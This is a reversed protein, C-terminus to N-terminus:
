LGDRSSMELLWRLAMSPAELLLHPACVQVSPIFRLLSALTAQTLTIDIPSCALTLTTANYNPHYNLAAAHMMEIMRPKATLRVAIVLPELFAEFVPEETEM